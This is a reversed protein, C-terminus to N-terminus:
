PTRHITKLLVAASRPGNAIAVGGRNSPAAKGRHVFLKMKRQTNTLRGMGHRVPTGGRLVLGATMKRRNAESQWVWPSSGKALVRVIEYRTKFFPERRGGQM